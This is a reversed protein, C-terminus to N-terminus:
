YAGYLFLDREAKRRNTLGPNSELMHSVPDQAQNWRLFQGAAANYDSEDLLRLLTSGRFAAAGVNYIFSVLADFQSQDLKVTVANQVTTESIKVDQVLLERAQDKTIAGSFSEDPSSMWFSLVIDM